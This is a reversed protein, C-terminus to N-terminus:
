KEHLKIPNEQSNPAFRFRSSIQRKQQSEPFKPSSTVTIGHQYKGFIHDFILLENYKM